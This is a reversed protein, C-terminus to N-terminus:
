RCGQHQYFEMVILICDMNLMAVVVSYEFRCFVCSTIEAWGGM